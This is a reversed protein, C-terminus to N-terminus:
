DSLKCVFGSLGKPGRETGNGRGVGRQFMGEVRGEIAAPGGQKRGKDMQTGGTHAGRGLWDPSDIGRHAQPVLAM